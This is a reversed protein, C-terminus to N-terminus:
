AKATRAAILSEIPPISNPDPEWGQGILWARDRQLQEAATALVSKRVATRSATEGDKFVSQVVDSTKARLEKVAQYVEGPEARARELVDAAHATSAALAKLAATTEGGGRAQEGFRRSMELLRGLEDCDFRYELPLRQSLISLMGMILQGQELALKNGPDLAPLVVDKMSKMISQLQIGPRLQM